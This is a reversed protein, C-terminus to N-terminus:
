NCFTPDVVAFSEIEALMLEGEGAIYGLRQGCDRLATACKEVECATDFKRLYTGTHSEIQEIAKYEELKVEALGHYVNFRFLRDELIM